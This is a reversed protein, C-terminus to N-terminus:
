LVEREMAEMGDYDDAAKAEAWRMDVFINRGMNM